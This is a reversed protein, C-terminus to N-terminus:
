SDSMLTRNVVHFELADEDIVETPPDFQGSVILALTEDTKLTRKQKVDYQIFVESPQNIFPQFPIPVNASNGKFEITGTYTRTWYQLVDLRNINAMWAPQEHVFLDAPDNDFTNELFEEGIVVLAAGWSLAASSVRDEEPVQILIDCTVRGISRLHTAREKRFRDPFDNTYDEPAVLEAIALFNAITVFSGVTDQVHFPVWVRQRASQRPRQRMPRRQRRFAM